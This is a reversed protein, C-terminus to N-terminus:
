HPPTSPTQECYTRLLQAIGNAVADPLLIHIAKQDGLSIELGIVGPGPGSYLWANHAKLHTQGISASNPSDLPPRAVLAELLGAQALPSLNLTREIGAGDKITVTLKM